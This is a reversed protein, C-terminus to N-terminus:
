VQLYRPEAQEVAELRARLQEPTAHDLVRAFAASVTTLRTQEVRVASRVQQEVVQAVNELGLRLEAMVGDRAVEYARIAIISGTTFAVVSLALLVSLLFGHSFRSLWRKRLAILSV